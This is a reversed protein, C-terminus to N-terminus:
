ALALPPHLPRRTAGALYYADGSPPRELHDDCERHWWIGRVVQRALRVHEGAKTLRIWGAQLGEHGGVPGSRAVVPESMARYHM